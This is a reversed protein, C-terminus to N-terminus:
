KKPYMILQENTKQSYWKDHAEKLWQGLTTKLELTAKAPISELSLSAVQYPDKLNDFLMYTGDQIVEYTYRETRVGKSKGSFFLASSPKANKKYKGTAIGDSYNRGMVSSPIMKDLGMLGLMTPMIDVSSFMLDSLRHNLKGPYRIIFPVLFSEDYISGKGMMQHSGMLEGHDSTFVVITNDAEGTEELAQLVRGIERDVATILSFYIRANMIRTRNENSPSDSMLNKDINKRVLLQDVPMDRYYQNYITTDCDSLKNYPPHPPNISWILSFPKDPNREGNKNKLYQIVIDAEKTATFQQNSYTMGDAKGGILEPRNSYAKANYHNDLIHQFWYKNSHRSKGEPIYTDYECISHGGPEETSGVYNGMKDFVAETKHWHTKGVYATEYDAKALVDTFCEIDHDIEQNRGLKCNMDLGNTQAYMGTMLMGRHPSSLPFTSCVQTFLVGQKALKDLNPTHVPDGSTAIANKYKPNSWIGLAQLRYQDPFIYLLNPKKKEQPPTPEIRGYAKNIVVGTTLMLLLLKKTYINTRM